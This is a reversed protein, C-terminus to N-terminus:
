GGSVEWSRRQYDAIRRRTADLAIEDFDDRLDIMLGRCQKGDSTGEFLQPVELPWRLGDARILVDVTSM